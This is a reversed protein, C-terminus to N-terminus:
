RTPPHRPGRRAHQIAELVGAQVMERDHERDEANEAERMNYVRLIFAMKPGLGINVDSMNESEKEPGGEMAEARLWDGYFRADAGQPSRDPRLAVQRTDHERM